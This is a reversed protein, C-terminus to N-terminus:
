SKYSNFDLRSFGLFCEVDKQAKKQCKVFYQQNGGQSKHIKQFVILRRPYMGM